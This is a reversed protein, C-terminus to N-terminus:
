FEIDSLIIEKVIEVIKSDFKTGSYQTLLQVIQETPMGNLKLEEVYEVVAVIRAGLPIADGKLGEPYGSGDFNEHHYKIIPAINKLLTIKSVIEAGIIVHLQEIKARQLIKDVNDIDYKLKPSLYGIDHLLTGFYINKYEESWPQIGMKKAVNTAMQTMKWYREKYKPRVTEIASVILETMNTFFNRQNESFKANLISVAALGALSELLKKDEEAFGNPDKKNLVEIVGIVEEGSDVTTIIIPVALISKTQFGSQQDVKGTFRPDKTVDNVIEAQKTIAVNGAIGEGIKIKIKKVVAGKEGGATKFYLHQKDEDVLMISSAESNTLREAVDGIRKLLADLDLTSSLSKVIEFFEEFKNIDLM